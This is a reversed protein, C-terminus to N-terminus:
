PNSTCGHDAETAKQQYSVTQYFESISRFRRLHNELRLAAEPIKKRGSRM